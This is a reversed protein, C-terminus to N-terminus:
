WNPVRAITVNALNEKVSTILFHISCWCPSSVIVIFLCPTVLLAATVFVVGAGQRNSEKWRWTASWKANGEGQAWVCESVHARFVHGNSNKNLSINLYSVRSQLFETVESSTILPSPLAPGPFHFPRSLETNRDLWFCKCGWFCIRIAASALPMNEMNLASDM